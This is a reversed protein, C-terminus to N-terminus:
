QERLQGDFRKREVQQLDDAFLANIWEPSRTLQTAIYDSLGLVTKLEQQQAATLNALGESWVEALRAWHRESAQTILPSLSKNSDKQVAM